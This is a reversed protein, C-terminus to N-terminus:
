CRFLFPIPSVFSHFPGRVEPDPFHKENHHFVNSPFHIATDKYIQTGCIDINESAMRVALPAPGTMRLTEKFVADLYKYSKLEEAGPLRSGDGPVLLQDIEDVLRTQMDNHKALMYLCFSLASATTEYGALLFTFSQASVEARTLMKGTERNHAKLFLKLFGNGVKEDGWERGSSGDASAPPAAFGEKGEKGAAEARMEEQALQYMEDSLGSLYGQAWFAEKMGETPYTDAFWKVLPMTFTPLLMAVLIYPNSAGFVSTNKFIAKAAAVGQRGKNGAEGGVCNFRVGFVTSGVVDLTMDGFAASVDVSKGSDAAVALREALEDATKGMLPAFTAMTEVSHFISHATSRIGKWYQDKAALMGHQQLDRLTQSVVKMMNENARPRNTFAKFQRLTIARFMDVDTVVLIVNSGLFCKFVGGYRDAWEQYLADIDRTALQVMNGFFPWPLPGPIHAYYYLGRALDYNLYVFLLGVAVAVQTLLSVRDGNGALVLAALAACLVATRM